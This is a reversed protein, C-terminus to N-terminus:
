SHAGGTLNPVCRDRLSVEQMQQADGQPLSHSASVGFEPRATPVLACTQAPVILHGCM